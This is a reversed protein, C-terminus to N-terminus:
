RSSSGRIRVLAWGAALSTWILVMAAMGFWFTWPRYDFLVRFKGPPIPITKFTYNGRLVPVPKGEISARWGPYWNDSFFLFRRDEGNEVELEVRNADYRLVRVASAGAVGSIGYRTPDHYGTDVPLELVVTERFNTTPANLFELAQEPDAIVRSDRILAFRGIPDRADEVDLLDLLRRNEGLRIQMLPLYFIPTGNTMGALYTLRWFRYGSLPGFDNATATRTVFALWPRNDGSSTRRLHVREPPAHVPNETLPLFDASPRSPRYERVFWLPVWQNLLLLVAAAALASRLSLTRRALLSLLTLFGGTALLSITRMAILPNEPPRGVLRLVLDNLVSLAAVALVITGARAFLPWDRSRLHGVWRLARDAGWGILVPISFASVHLSFAQERIAPWLPFLNFLVYYLASWQALSIVLAIVSASALFRAIWGRTGVAGLVALAVFGPGLYSWRYTLVFDPLLMSLLSEMFGSTTFAVWYPLSSQMRPNFLMSEFFPFFFAGSGCVSAAFFVGASAVALLGRRVRGGIGISYSGVMVFAVVFCLVFISTYPHTYTLGFLAGGLILLLLRQLGASQFYRILCLFVLPMWVMVKVTVSWLLFMGLNYFNFLYALGAIFAAPRSVKLQRMLLYFFVGSFSWQLAVAMEYALFPLKGNHVTFVMALFFPNVLDSYFNAVSPLGAGIHPSWLPLQGGRLLVLNYNVWTYHPFAHSNVLLYLRYPEPLWLPLLFFLPLLFLLFPLAFSRAKMFNSQAPHTFECHSARALSVM